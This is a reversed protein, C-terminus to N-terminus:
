AFRLVAILAIAAIAIVVLLIPLYVRPSINAPDNDRTIGGFSYKAIWGPVRGIATYIIGLAAGVGLIVRTHLDGVGAFITWGLLLLIVFSLVGAAIRKSNM